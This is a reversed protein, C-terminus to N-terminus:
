EGAIVLRNAISSASNAGEEEESSQISLNKLIRPNEIQDNLDRSIDIGFGNEEEDQTFFFISPLYTNFFPNLM